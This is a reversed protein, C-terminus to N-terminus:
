DSVTADQVGVIRADPVMGFGPLACAESYPLCLWEGSHTDLITVHDLGTARTAAIGVALCDERTAFRMPETM